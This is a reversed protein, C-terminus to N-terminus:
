VDVFPAITANVLPRDFWCILFPIRTFQTQGPGPIDLSRKHCSERSICMCDPGRENWSSHVSRRHLLKASAWHTAWALRALNCCTKYEKSALIAAENRALRQMRIATNNQIASPFSYIAPFDISKLKVILEDHCAPERYMEISYVGHNM